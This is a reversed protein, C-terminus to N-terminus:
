LRFVRERIQWEGVQRALGDVSRRGVARVAEHDRAFREVADASKVLRKDRDVLFRVEAPADALRAVLREDRRLRPCVVKTENLGTAGRRQSLEANFTRPASVVKRAVAELERTAVERPILRKDDREDERRQAGHPVSADCKRVLAGVDGPGIQAAREAANQISAITSRAIPISGM